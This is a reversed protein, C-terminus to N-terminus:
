EETGSRMRPVLMNVLDKCGMNSIRAILLRAIVHGAADTDSTGQQQSAGRNPFLVQLKQTM